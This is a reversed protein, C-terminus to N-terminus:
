QVGGDKREFRTDARVVSRDCSGDSVWGARADPFADYEPIYPKIDLLPSGDLMDVGEVRVRCGEVSLLRVCSIGIPNPRAPARTAFLGREEPCRYPVVIMKPETTRDCWFLLWVREFGELNRLGEAYPEFVEVEGEHGVAYVPQLPTGTAQKNPTRIVGIPTCEM